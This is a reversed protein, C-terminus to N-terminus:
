CTHGITWCNGYFSSSSIKGECEQTKASAILMADVEGSFLCDMERAENKCQRCQRCILLQLMFMSLKKRMTRMAVYKKRSLSLSFHNLFPTAFTKMTVQIKKLIIMKKMPYLHSLMNETNRESSWFKIFSSFSWLM